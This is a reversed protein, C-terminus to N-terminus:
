SECKRSDFQLRRSTTLRLTLLTALIKVNRKERPSKKRPIETPITLEPMVEFDVKGTHGSGFPINRKKIRYLLTLKM